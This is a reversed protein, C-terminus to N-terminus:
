EVQTNDSIKKLHIDAATEIRSAQFYKKWEGSMDGYANPDDRALLEGLRLSDSSNDRCASFAKGCLEVIRNEVVASIRELDEEDMKLGIGKEIEDVIMDAKIKIKLVVTGNVVSASKQCHIESIRVGIKGLKEDVGEVSMDKAKDAIIVFGATEDDDTIHVLKDGSFLGVGKTNVNEDKKKELVPIYIDSTKDAYLNLVMATTVLTCLGSKENNSILYLINECPVAADNEKSEIIDKADSDSICVAVDTRSDASRLFYDLNKTFDEEALSKGIVILKNQGFFIRKSLAKSLNTIGDTISEGEKDTNITMNGDPTQSGNNIGVNLTQITLNIKGNKNDIGMGEVIVLDKLHRSTSCGSMLTCLMLLVAIIKFGKSM